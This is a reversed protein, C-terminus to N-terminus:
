LIWMSFWPLGFTFILKFPTAMPSPRTSGTFTLQHITKSDVECYTHTGEKKEEEIEREDRERKKDGVRRKKVRGGGRVEWGGRRGERGREGGGGWM